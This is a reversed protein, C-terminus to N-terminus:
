PNNKKWNKLWIDMELYAALDHQSLEFLFKELNKIIEALKEMQKISEEPQNEVLNQVEAKFKEAEIKGALLDDFLELLTKM